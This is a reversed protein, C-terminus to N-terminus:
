VRASGGSRLWLVACVADGLAHRGSSLSEPLPPLPPLPKLRGAPAPQVPWAVPMPQKKSSGPCSNIPRGTAVRCVPRGSSAPRMEGHAARTKMAEVGCRCRGRWFVYRTKRSKPEAGEAIRAGTWSGNMLHTQVELTGPFSSRMIQNRFGGGPIRSSCRQGFDV